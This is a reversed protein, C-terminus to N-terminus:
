IVCAWIYIRLEINLAKGEFISKWVEHINNFKELIGEVMYSWTYGMYSERYSWFIHIVM